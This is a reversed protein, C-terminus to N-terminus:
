LFYARERTKARKKREKPDLAHPRTHTHANKSASIDVKKERAAVAAAAQELKPVSGFTFFRLPWVLMMM